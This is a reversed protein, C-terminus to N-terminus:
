RSPKPNMRVHRKTMGGSLKASPYEFKQGVNQAAGGDFMRMLCDFHYTKSASQGM